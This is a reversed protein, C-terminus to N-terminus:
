AHRRLPEPVRHAAGLLLRVGAAQLLDLCLERVGATVESLQQHRERGRVGEAEPRHGLLIQLGGLEGAADAIRAARCNAAGRNAATCDTCGRAASSSRFAGPAPQTAHRLWDSASQQVLRIGTNTLRLAREETARRDRWTRLM